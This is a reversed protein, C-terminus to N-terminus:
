IYTTKAKQDSQFARRQVTAVNHISTLSDVASSVSLAASLSFISADDLISLPQVKISRACQSSDGV